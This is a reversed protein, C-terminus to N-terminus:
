LKAIKVMKGFLYLNKKSLMKKLEDICDNEFLNDLVFMGNLNQLISGLFVQNIKPLFITTQKQQQGFM